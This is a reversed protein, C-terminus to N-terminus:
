GELEGQNELRGETPREGAGLRGGERATAAADRVCDRIQRVVNIIKNGVNYKLSYKELPRFIVNVTTPIWLVLPIPSVCVRCKPSNTILLSVTHVLVEGGGNGRVYSWQFRIDVTKIFVSTVGSDFNDCQM